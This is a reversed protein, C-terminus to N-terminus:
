LDRPTRNWRSRGFDDIDDWQLEDHACRTMVNWYSNALTHWGTSTELKGDAVDKHITGMDTSSKLELM